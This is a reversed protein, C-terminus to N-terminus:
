DSRATNDIVGQLFQEIDKARARESEIDKGSADERTVPNVWDKGPRPYPAGGERAKQAGLKRLQHHRPHLTRNRPADGYKELEEDTMMELPMYGAAVIAERAAIDREYSPARESRTRDLSAGGPAYREGPHLDRSPDTLIALNEIFDRAEERTQEALLKEVEEKIIQKLKDKSLKM